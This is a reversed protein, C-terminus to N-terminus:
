VRRWVIIAPVPSPGELLEFVNDLAGSSAFSVLLSLHSNRPRFRGRLVCASLADLCRTPACSPPIPSPPSSRSSGTYSATPLKHAIPIGPRSGGVGQCSRADMASPDGSLERSGGRILYIFHGSFGFDVRPTTGGVRCRRLAEGSTPPGALGKALEGRSMRRERSTTCLKCSPDPSRSLVGGEESM